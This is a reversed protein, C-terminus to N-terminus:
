LRCGMLVARSETSGELVDPFRPKTGGCHSLPPAQGEPPPTTNLRHAITIVTCARFKERITKQILEDTRPDVNATAEDIILIRNKRLIARALCVLQRQGVGFNSGSEALVTELKQPLEEVAPKLQVQLTSCPPSAGRRLETATHPLLPYEGGPPRAQFTTNNDKLVRPGDPNHSFNVRPDTLLTSSAVPNGLRSREGAGHVGGGEGGVIVPVQLSSATTVSSSDSCPIFYTAALLSARWSLSEKM